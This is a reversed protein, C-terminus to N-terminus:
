VSCCIDNKNTEFDIDTKTNSIDALHSLTHALAPSCAAAIEWYDKGRTMPPPLPVLRSSIPTLPLSHKGGAAAYFTKKKPTSCLQYRGFNSSCLKQSGLQDFIRFQLQNNKQSVCPAWSYWEYLNAHWTKVNLLCILSVSLRHSHDFHKELGTTDFIPM